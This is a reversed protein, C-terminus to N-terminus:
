IGRLSALTDQFKQMSQQAKQLSGNSRPATFQAIKNARNATWSQYMRSQAAPTTNEVPMPWLAASEEHLPSLYKSQVENTSELVLAREAYMTSSSLSIHSSGPALHELQFLKDRSNQMAQSIEVKSQALRSQLRQLVAKEEDLTQGHTGCIGMEHLSARCFLTFILLHWLSATTWRVYKTSAIQEQLEQAMKARFHELASSNSLWSPRVDSQNGVAQSDTTFTQLFAATKPCSHEDVQDREEQNGSERAEYIGQSGKRYKEVRIQAATAVERQEDLAAQLKTLAREKVRCQNECVTLREQIGRKDRSLLM